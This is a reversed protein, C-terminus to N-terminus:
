EEANGGLRDALDYLKMSNSSKFLVTDGAKVEQLLAQYLEERDDFSRIRIGEEEPIEQAKEAERVGAAIGRALDGLTFLIDAQRRGGLQRGVGAHMEYEEAGLEKMDGLVAIRRGGHDLRELIDLSAKMSLPSANYADDFVLIGDRETMQQRHRYGRYEGVAAAAKELDVGYEKAVALAASANLVHHMGYVQLVVPVREEGATVEFRPQGHSLDINVARVDCGESTGYRVRRVGERLPCDRLMPDDGNVFMVAHEPMCDQIHLKESRINEQSGLIELHAEGVNTFVAADPCVMRSLRAMEGFNSMGMEIVGIEDEDSLESLTIPVGIQSNHNGKTRFVRKGSSLAAAVIERTSTKGVSGTIGVLPIPHLKRCGHGLDQLAKVTDEVAILAFREPIGAADDAFPDGESTFAAAAGKEAVQRLYKHGDTKEGIIPVFLANELDERSDTVIKEPLGAPDGRLIKGGCIEAIKEVTLGKM